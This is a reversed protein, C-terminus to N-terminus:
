QPTPHKLQLEMLKQTSILVIIKENLLQSQNISSILAKKHSQNNNISQLHKTKKNNLKINLKILM